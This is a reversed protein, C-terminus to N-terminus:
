LCALTYCLFPIFRLFRYFRCTYINNWCAPIWFRYYDIYCADLFLFFFRLIRTYLLLVNTYILCIFGPMNLLCFRLLEASLLVLYTIWLFPMTCINYSRSLFSRCGIYLFGLSACGPLLVWPLCRASFRCAAPLLLCATLASDLLFVCCFAPVWGNRHYSFRSIHHYLRCDAVWPMLRRPLRTLAAACDMRCVQRDMHRFRAPGSYSLVAAYNLCGPTAPL